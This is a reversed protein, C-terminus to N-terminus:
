SICWLQRNRQISMLLATKNVQMTPWYPINLLSFSFISQFMTRNSM